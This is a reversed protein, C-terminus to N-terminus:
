FDNILDYIMKFALPNAIGRRSTLLSRGLAFENFPSNFFSKLPEVLSCDTETWSRDVGNGSSDM